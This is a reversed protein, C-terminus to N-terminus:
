FMIPYIWIVLDESPQRFFNFFDNLFFQIKGLILLWFCFIKIVIEKVPVEDLDCLSLDLTDNDLKDKIEKATLKGSM